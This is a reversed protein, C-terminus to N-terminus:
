EIREVKIQAEADKAHGDEKEGGSRPVRGNILIRNANLWRTDVIFSVSRDTENDM